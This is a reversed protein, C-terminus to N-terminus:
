ETAGWLFNSQLDSQHDSRLHTEKNEFGRKEGSKQLECKAAYMYSTLCWNLPSPSLWNRTKESLPPKLYESRELYTQIFM